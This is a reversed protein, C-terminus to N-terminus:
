LPSGRKVHHFGTGKKSTDKTIQGVDIEKMAPQADILFM